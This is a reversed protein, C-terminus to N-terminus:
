LTLDILEHFRFGHISLSKEQDLSKTDDFTLWVDALTQTLIRLREYSYQLGLM